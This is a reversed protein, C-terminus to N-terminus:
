DQNKTKKRAFLKRLIWSQIKQIGWATLLPRVVDWVIPVLSQAVALYDSLGLSVPIQSSTAVAQKPANTERASRNKSGLFLLASFGSLLLSGAHEQIYAFDENLLKEQSVCAQQLRLREAQLKERPTMQQQKNM